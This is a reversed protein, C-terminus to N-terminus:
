AWFSRLRSVSEPVPWDQVAAVKAPDVCVGKAGIVHGLFVLQGRFFSCKGLMAILQHEKLKNLVTLLSVFPTGWLKDPM